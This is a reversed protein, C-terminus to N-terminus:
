RQKRNVMESFQHHWFDSNQAYRHAEEKWYDREKCLEDRVGELSQVLSKLYEVETVHGGEEHQGQGRQDSSM